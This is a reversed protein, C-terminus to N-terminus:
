NTPASPRFVQSGRWIAFLLMALVFYAGTASIAVDWQAYTKFYHSLFAYLPTTPGSLIFMAIVGPISDSPGFQVGAWNILVSIALLISLLRKWRRVFDTTLGLLVFPIMPVLYRPGFDWGGYWYHMTANFMLQVLFIGTIFLWIQRDAQRIRYILGVVAALLVPMYIFIGRYMGFTLDWLRSLGPLAFGGLGKQYESHSGYGSPDTPLSYPTTLPHGFCVYHYGMMFLTPGLLGAVPYLRNRGASKWLMYCFLLGTIPGATYDMIVATGALLGGLGSRFPTLPERAEWPQLLMFSSFLFFMSINHAYLRVAYFFCISGIGFSFAILLSVCDDRTLRLAYRYLMVATLATPLGSVFASLLMHLLVFEGFPYTEIFTDSAQGAKLFSRIYQETDYQSFPMEPMLGKFLSFVLYVPLGVIAPGPAAGAYYHGEYYSKDLTNHHYTDIAFRGEDVMSRVLDIYRTENAAPVPALHFLYILLVTLFLRWETPYSTWFRIM